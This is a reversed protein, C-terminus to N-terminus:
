SRSSSELERVPPASITRSPARKSSRGPLVKNALEAPSIRAKVDEVKESLKLKAKEKVRAIVKKPAIRDGIAFLAASMDQRAARIDQHIPATDVTDTTKTAM